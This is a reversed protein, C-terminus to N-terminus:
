AVPEMTQFFTQWDTTRLMNLGRKLQDAGCQEVKTWSGTGFIEKIVAAKSAKDNASQSPWRLLMESQIEELAITRQKRERGIEDDGSDDVGTDTKLTTDIPAHTGPKLLDLHPRFFAMTQELNKRPDAHTVFEVEAGDIVSFRDGLVTCRRVLRRKDNHEQKEREMEFLLSPEFGFESETKM